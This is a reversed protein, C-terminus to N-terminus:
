GVCTLGPESVVSGGGAWIFGVVIAGAEDGWGSMWHRRSANGLRRIEGRHCRSGDRIWRPKNILSSDNRPSQIGVHDINM